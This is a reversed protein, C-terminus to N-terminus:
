KSGEKIQKWEGIFDDMYGIGFPKLISQIQALDELSGCWYKSSKELIVESAITAAASELSPFEKYNRTM